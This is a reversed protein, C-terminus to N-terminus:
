TEEHAMGAIQLIRNDDVLGQIGGVKARVICGPGQINPGGPPHWVLGSNILPELAATFIAEVNQRQSEIQQATLNDFDFDFSLNATLWLTVFGDKAARKKLVKVFYLSEDTLAGDIKYIIPVRGDNPETQDANAIVVFVLLCCAIPIPIAKKQLNM